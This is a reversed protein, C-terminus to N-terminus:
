SNDDTELQLEELFDIAQRPSWRDQPSEETLGTVLPAWAPFQDVCNEVNLKRGAHAPALPRRLVCETIVCGLSYCDVKNDYHTMQLEIEPALYSLTGVLTNAGLTNVESQLKSAGLDALKAVNETLDLLINEPKVDRHFFGREHIYELAESVQQMWRRTRAQTLVFGRHRGERYIAQRLNGDPVFECILWVPLLWGTGNADSGLQDYAAGM